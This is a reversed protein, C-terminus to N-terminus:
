SVGGNLRTKRMRGQCNERRCTTGSAIWGGGSQDEEGGRRRKGPVEMAMVGLIAFSLSQLPDDNIFAYVAYALPSPTQSWRVSEGRFDVNLKLWQCHILFYAVHRSDPCYACMQLYKMYLVYLKFCKEQRRFTRLAVKKPHLCHCCMGTVTQGCLPSKAGSVRIKTWVDWWLAFLEGIM